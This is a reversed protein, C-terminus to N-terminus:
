ATDAQLNQYANKLSPFGEDDVEEPTVSSAHLLTAVYKPAQPVDITLDDYGEMFSKFAKVYLSKALLNETSLYEIVGATNEVDEAKKEVATLMEGIFLVLYHPDDLEM